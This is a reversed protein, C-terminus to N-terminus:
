RQQTKNRSKGRTGLSCLSPDTTAQIAPQPVTSHPTCGFRLLSHHRIGSSHCRMTVSACESVGPETVLSMSSVGCACVIEISEVVRVALMVMAPLVNGITARPPPPPHRARQARSMGVHTPRHVTHLAATQNMRSSSAESHLSTTRQTPHTPEDHSPLAALPHTITSGCGAM